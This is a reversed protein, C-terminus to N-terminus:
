RKGAAKRSNGGALDDGIDDMADGMDDLINNERDDEDPLNDTPVVTPTITPSATIVAGPSASGGSDTNTCGCFAAGISLAALLIFLQKKM